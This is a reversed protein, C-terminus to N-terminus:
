FGGYADAEDYVTMPREKEKGKDKKMEPQMQQPVPTQETKPTGIDFGAGLPSPTVPFKGLLPSAGATIGSPYIPSDKASNLGMSTM